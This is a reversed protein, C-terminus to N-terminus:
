IFDHEIFMDMNFKWRDLIPKRIPKTYITMAEIISEPTTDAKSIEVRQLLRYLQMKAVERIENWM